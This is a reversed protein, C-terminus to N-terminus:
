TKQPLLEKNCIAFLLRLLRGLQEESFEYLYPLIAQVFANELIATPDGDEVFFDKLPLGLALAIKELTGLSPTMQGSEIRSLYSRSVLSKKQLEAQTVGRNERLQRIRSGVRAVMHANPSLNPKTTLAVTGPVPFVPIKLM